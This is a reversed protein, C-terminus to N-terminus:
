SPTQNPHINKEEVFTVIVWFKKRAQEKPLPDLLEAGKGDYLGKVAIM